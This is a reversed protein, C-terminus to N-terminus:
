YGSFWFPIRYFHAHSYLSSYLPFAWACPLLVLFPFSCLTNCGTLPMFALSILELFISSTCHFSFHTLMQTKHHSSGLLHCLSVSLSKRVTAACHLGTVLAWLWWWHWSFSLANLLWPELSLVRSFTLLGQVILLNHCIKSTKPFGPSTCFFCKKQSFYFCM